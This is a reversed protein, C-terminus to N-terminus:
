SAPGKAEAVQALVEDLATWFAPELQGRILWWGGEVGLPDHRRALKELAEADVTLTTEWLNAAGGARESPRPEIYTPGVSFGEVARRWAAKMVQRPQLGTSAIREAQAALPRARVSVLAKRQGAEARPKRARRELMTQAAPQPDQGVAEPTVATAKQAPTSTAPTVAPEEAKTRIPDPQRLPAAAVPLDAVFSGAYSTDNKLVDQLRRRGM